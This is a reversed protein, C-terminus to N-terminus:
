AREPEATLVKEEALRWDVDKPIRGVMCLSLVHKRLKFWCFFADKYVGCRWGNIRAPAPATLRGPDEWCIRRNLVM